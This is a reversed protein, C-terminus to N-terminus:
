GRGSPTWTYEILCSGSQMSNAGSAKDEFRAGLAFDGGQPGVMFGAWQLHSQVCTEDQKNALGDPSTLGVNRTDNGEKRQALPRFSSTEGSTDVAPKAQAERGPALHQARAAIGATHKTSSQSVFM